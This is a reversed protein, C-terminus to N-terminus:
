AAVAALRPRVYYAVDGGKVKAFGRRSMALGVARRSEPEASAVRCSGEYMEYLSKFSTPRDSKVLGALFGPLVDEALAAVPEGQPPSAVPVAEPSADPVAFTEAAKAAGSPMLYACLLPGFAALLEVGLAFLLSLGFGTGRLDVTIGGLALASAIAEAQPDVSERVPTARLQANLAALEGALKDRQEVAMLMARARELGACLARSETVTADACRKSRAYLADFERAAIDGKLGASTSAGLEGTLRDMAGRMARADGALSERTTQMTAADNRAHDRGGALLGVANAFNILVFVVLLALALMRVWISGRKELCLGCIAAGIVCAVAAGIVAPSRGSALGHEINIGVAPACCLVAAAALAWRKWMGNKDGTM